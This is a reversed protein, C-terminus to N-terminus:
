SIAARLRGEWPERGREASQIKRLFASARAELREARAREDDDGIRTDRLAAQLQAIAGAASAAEAEALRWRAAELELTVEEAHAEMDELIVQPMRPSLGAAHDLGRRVLDLYISLREVQDACAAAPCFEIPTLTTTM